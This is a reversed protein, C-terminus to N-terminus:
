PAGLKEHHDCLANLVRALRRAYGLEGGYRPSAQASLKGRAEGICALVCYRNVSDKPLRAATLELERILLELHGRVTATLVGIDTHEPLPAATADPNVLAATTERMVALDVPATTSDQQTANM